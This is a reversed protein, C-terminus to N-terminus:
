TVGNNKLAIIVISSSYKIVTDGAKVRHERTWSKPLTVALSNAGANIVRGETKTLDGIRITKRVRVM